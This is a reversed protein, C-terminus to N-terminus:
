FYLYSHRWSEFSARKDKEEGHGKPFHDMSCISVNGLEGDGGREKGMMIKGVGKGVMGGGGYVWEAEEEHGGFFRGAGMEEDGEEFDRM